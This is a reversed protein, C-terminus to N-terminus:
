CLILSVIIDRFNMVYSLFAFICFVSVCFCTYIIKSYGCLTIMSVIASNAFIVLLFYLSWGKGLGLWNFCAPNNSFALAMYM